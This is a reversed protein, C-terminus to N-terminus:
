IYHEVEDVPGVTYRPLPRETWSDFDAPVLHLEQKLRRDLRTDEVLFECSAPASADVTLDSCPCALMLGRPLDEDHGGARQLLEKPEPLSASHQEVRQPRGTSQELQVALRLKDFHDALHRLRWAQRSVACDATVRAQGVGCVLVGSGFLVGGGVATLLYVPTLKIPDFASQLSEHSNVRQIPLREIASEDVIILQDIIIDPTTVEKRANMVHPKYLFTTM